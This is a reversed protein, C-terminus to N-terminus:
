VAGCTYCTSKGFQVSNYNDDLNITTEGAGLFLYGDPKLVSRVGNLIKKKTEVDFYILVNRLFVIDMPPIYPWNGALNLEQFKIMDRINQKIQWSTGERTFYKVIMPAPMGRNLELQAYMGEQARELMSPSLDTAIFNLKWNLLEPFNDHILMSVSYPEQGSSCAAFWINLTKTASNKELFKPILHDKLALFPHQDRFFSTENTTMADVVKEHLPSNAASKLKGVLETVSSYGADRAISLLRTEVLYEKGDEILIASRGKILDKVYAFEVASISM